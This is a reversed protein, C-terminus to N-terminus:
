NIIIDYLKIVDELNQNVDQDVILMLQVVIVMNVVVNITLVNSIIIDKGCGGNPIIIWHQDLNDTDCINLNLKNTDNYKGLCKYDSLITWIDEQGYSTKIDQM